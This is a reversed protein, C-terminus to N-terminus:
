GIADLIWTYRRHSHLLPSCQEQRSEHNVMVRVDQLAESMDVVDSIRQNLQQVSLVEDTQSLTESRDDPSEEM